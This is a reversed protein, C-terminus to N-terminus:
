LLFAVLMLSIVGIRSQYWHQRARPSNVKCKVSARPDLLPPTESVVNLFCCSTLPATATLVRLELFLPPFKPTVIAACSRTHWCLHLSGWISCKTTRLLIGPLHGPFGVTIIDGRPAGTHLIQTTNTDNPSGSVGVLYSWRHIPKIDGHQASEM